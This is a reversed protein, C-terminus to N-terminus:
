LPVPVGRERLYVKVQQITLIRFHFVSATLLITAGAEAVAENFHELIGAGGSAVVLVIADSGFQSSLLVNTRYFTAV